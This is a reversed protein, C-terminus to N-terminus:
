SPTQTLRNPLFCNPLQYLEGAIKARPNIQQQEAVIKKGDARCEAETDYFGIAHNHDAMVLLTWYVAAIM